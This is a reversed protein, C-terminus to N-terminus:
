VKSQSCSSTNIVEYHHCELSWFTHSKCDTCPCWAKKWGKGGSGPFSAIRRPLVPSHVAKKTSAACAATDIKQMLTQYNQAGSTNYTFVPSLAFTWPSVDLEFPFWNCEPQEKACLDSCIKCGWLGALFICKSHVNGHLVVSASFTIKRVFLSVPILFFISSFFLLALNCSKTTFSLNCLGM